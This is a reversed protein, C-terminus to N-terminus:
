TAEAPRLASRCIPDVFIVRHGLRRFGLLYQLFAWASGGQGPANAITGAFVVTLPSVLEQESDVRPTRPVEAPTGSQAAAVAPTRRRGRTSSLRSPPLPRRLVDHEARVVVRRRPEAM